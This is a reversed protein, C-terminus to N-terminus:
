PFLGDVEFRRCRIGTDKKRTSNFNDRKGNLKPQRESTNFRRFTRFRDEVLSALRDGRRVINPNSSATEEFLFRGRVRILWNLRPVFFKVNDVLRDFCTHALQSAVLYKQRPLLPQLLCLSTFSLTRRPSTLRDDFRRHSHLDFFLVSQVRPDSICVARLRPPHHARGSGNQCIRQLYERIFAVQPAFCRVKLLCM